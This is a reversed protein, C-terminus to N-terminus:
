TIFCGAVESTSEGVKRDFAESKEVILVRTEPRARKLLLALASGSFAGGFIVVDYDPRAPSDNMTAM